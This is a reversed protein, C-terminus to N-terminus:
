EEEFLSAAVEELPGPHCKQGADGSGYALLSQLSSKYPVLVSTRPAYM